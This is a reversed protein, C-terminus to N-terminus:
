KTKVVIQFSEYMCSKKYYAWHPFIILCSYFSKSLLILLRPSPQCYSSSIIPLFPIFSDCTFLSKINGESWKLALILYFSRPHLSDISWLIFTLCDVKNKGNLKQKAQLRAYIHPQFNLRANAPGSLISLKKQLLAFRNQHWLWQKNLSGGQLAIM